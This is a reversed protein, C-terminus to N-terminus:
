KSAGKTPALEITCLGEAVWSALVHTPWFRRQRGVNSTRGGLGKPSTGRHHIYDRFVGGEAELWFRKGAPDTVQIVTGKPRSHLWEMDVAIM